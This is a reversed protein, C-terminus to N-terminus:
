SSTTATATACRGPDARQRGDGAHRRRAPRLAPQHEDILALAGHRRHRDLGQLRSLELTQPSRKPPTSSTTSWWWRSTTQSMRTITGDACGSLFAKPASIRPAQDAHLAARRRSGAEDPALARAGGARRGLPAGRRGQHDPRARAGPRRLPRDVRRQRPRIRRGDPHARGPDARHARVRDRRRPRAHEDFDASAVASAACGPRSSRRRRRDRARAPRPEGVPAGRRRGARRARRRGRPQSLHMAFREVWQERTVDFEM